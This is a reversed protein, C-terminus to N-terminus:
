DGIKLRDVWVNRDGGSAEKDTDFTVQLTHPGAALEGLDLPQSPVWRVVQSDLRVEVSPDGDFSEVHGALHLASRVALGFSVRHKGDSLLAWDLELSSGPTLLPEGNTGGRWGDPEGQWREFAARAYDVAGERPYRALLREAEGGRGRSDLESAIDLVDSAPHVPRWGLDLASRWGVQAAAADSDPVAVLAEMDLRRSLGLLGPVVWREAHVAGALLLREEGTANFVAGMRGAGVVALVGLGVRVALGSGGARGLSWVGSALIGLVVIEPVVSIAAPLELAAVSQRCAVVVALGLPVPNRERVCIAGAVLLCVWGLDGDVAGWWGALVAGACLAPVGTWAALLFLPVMAWHQPAFAAVVTALGIGADAVQRHSFRSSWGTM